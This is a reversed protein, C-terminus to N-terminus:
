QLENKEARVYISTKVCSLQFFVGMPYKLKFKLEVSQGTYRERETRPFTSSQMKLHPVFGRRVLGM